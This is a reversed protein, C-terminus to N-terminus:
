GAEQAPPSAIRLYGALAIAVFWAIVPVIPLLM